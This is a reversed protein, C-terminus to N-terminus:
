VAPAPSKQVDKLWAFFGYVALITFVAYEISVLRINRDYYVYVAVIDIAIWLIWNELIRRAQLVLALVSAVAIFTDVFPYAAPQPFLAPLWSHIGTMMFGLAATTAAVAAFVMTRAKNDLVSVPIHAQHQKSWNLWGYVSMVFFYVQLFMDSYLHVQYFIAFFCVMSVMGIPWTLINQRAALWVCALGTLTGALEIFSVPYHWITFLIFTIDFFPPM